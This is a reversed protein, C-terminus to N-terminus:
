CIFLCRFQIQAINEVFISESQKPLVQAELIMKKDIKDLNVELNVVSYHKFIM